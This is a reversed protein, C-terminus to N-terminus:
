STPEKINSFGVIDALPGCPDCISEDYIPIGRSELGKEKLFTFFADNRTKDPHSNVWQQELWFHFADSHKWQYALYKLAKNPTTFKIKQQYDYQALYIAYLHLPRGDENRVSVGRLQIGAADLFDLTFQLDEISDSTEQERKM